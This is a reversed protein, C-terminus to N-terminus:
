SIVRCAPGTARPLALARLSTVQILFINKTNEFAAYGRVIYPHVTLESLLLRM